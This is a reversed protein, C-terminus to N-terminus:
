LNGQIVYLQFFNVFMGHLIEFNDFVCVCVDLVLHRAWTYVHFILTYASFFLRKILNPHNSKIEAIYKIECPLVRQDTSQLSNALTKLM